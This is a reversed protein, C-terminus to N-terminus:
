HDLLMVNSSDLMAKKLMGRGVEKTTPSGSADSICYLVGEGMEAAPITDTGENASKIPGRGGLPEWFEDDHDHTVKAHGHRQSEIKEAIINAQFKEMPNAHQGVWIYIKKGADLIFCDGQNLSARSLAVEKNIIGSKTKRIHLLKM